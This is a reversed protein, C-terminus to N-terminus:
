TSTNLANVGKKKKSAMDEAEEPWQDPLSFFPFANTAESVIEPATKGERARETLFREIESPLASSRLFEPAHRLSIRGQETLGKEDVLDKDVLSQARGAWTSPRGLSFKSQMRVLKSEMDDAGTFKGWLEVPSVGVASLSARAVSIRLAEGSGTRGSVDNDIEIHGLAYLANHPHFFRDDIERAEREARRREIGLRIALEKLSQTVDESYDHADTRPYSMQGSLYLNEAMRNKEGVTQETRLCLFDALNWPKSQEPDAVTAKMREPDLCLNLLPTVIRGICLGRAGYQDFIMRDLTARAIGRASRDIWPQRNEFAKRIANVSLSDVVMRTFLIGKGALRRIDTAIVEGEDDPDTALVIEASGALSDLIKQTKKPHIPTRLLSGDPCVAPSEGSRYEMIHGGTALVHVPGAWENRNWRLADRYRSLKGPAEIVVVIM